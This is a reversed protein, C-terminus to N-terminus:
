DGRRQQLRAMQEAIRVADQVCEFVRYAPEGAVVFRIEEVSTPGALHAQATEFLIEACRQLPIAGAGLPAMAVVATGQANAAALAAAFADRVVAETVPARLAPELQVAGEEDGLVGERVRIRGM